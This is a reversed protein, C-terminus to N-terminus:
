GPLVRLLVAKVGLVEQLGGKSETIDFDHCVTSFLFDNGRVVCQLCFDVSELCVLLWALSAEDADHPDAVGPVPGAMM